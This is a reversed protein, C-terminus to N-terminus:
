TFDIYFNSYMRCLKLAKCLYYQEVLAVLKDTVVGAMLVFNRISILVANNSTELHISNTERALLMFTALASNKLNSM